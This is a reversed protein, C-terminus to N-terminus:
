AARWHGSGAPLDGTLRRRVLSLAAVAREYSVRIRSTHDTYDAPAPLHWCGSEPDFVLATPTPLNGGTFNYIM